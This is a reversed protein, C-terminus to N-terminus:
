IRRLLGEVLTNAKAAVSAEDVTLLEGDQVVIRGNVITYDVPRNVGVTCLLAAPDAQTGVFQLRDTRLLFLDAAKGM